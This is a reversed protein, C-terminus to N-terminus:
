EELEPLYHALLFVIALLLFVITGQNIWASPPIGLIHAGGFFLKM